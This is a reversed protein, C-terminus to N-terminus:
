PWLLRATTSSLQLLLAATSLVGEVKTYIAAATSSVHHRLKGPLYLKAQRLVATQTM